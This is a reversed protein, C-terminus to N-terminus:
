MIDGSHVLWQGSWGGGMACTDVNLRQGRRLETLSEKLLTCRALDSVSVCVCVSLGDEWGAAYALHQSDQWYADQACSPM